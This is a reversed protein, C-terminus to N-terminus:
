DESSIAYLTGDPKIIVFNGNLDTQGTWKDSKEVPVSVKNGNVNFGTTNTGIFDKIASDIIKGSDSTLKFVENAQKTADKEIAFKQNEYEDFTIKQAIFDSSLKYIDEGAKNNIKMIDVIVRNVSPSNATRPTIYENMKLEEKNLNQLGNALERRFANAGVNTLQGDTNFLKNDFNFGLLEAVEGVFIRTDGFAGTQFTDLGMEIQSISQADKQYSGFKEREKNVNSIQTEAFALDTKGALDINTVSKPKVLLEKYLEQYEPSKEDIGKIRAYSDLNKQLNTRNDTSQAKILMADAKIQEIDLGLGQLRIRDENYKEAINIRKKDLGLQELALKTEESFKGKSFDLKDQELLLQNGRFKELNDITQQQIGVNKLGLKWRNNIDIGQLELQKEDVGLRALSIKEDSTFKREQLDLSATRYNELNDIQKEQLGLGLLALREDSTFKKNKFALLDINNQKANKIQEETLGIKKLELEENSLFKDKELGFKDTALGFTKEAMLNQFATQQDRFAKTDEYQKDRFAIQDAYRQAETSRGMGRALAEGFSVPKFSTGSAELLGQAMGQGKPSLIYELLNNRYNPPTNTRPKDNFQNIQPQRNSSLNPVRQNPNIYTNPRNQSLFPNGKISQVM